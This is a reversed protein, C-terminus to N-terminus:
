RLVQRIVLDAPDGLYGSRVWHWIAPLSGGDEADPNVRSQVHHTCMTCGTNAPSETEGSFEVGALRLCREAFQAPTRAGTM